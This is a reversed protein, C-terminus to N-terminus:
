VGNVSARAMWSVTTAAKGQVTVIINTGSITLTANWDPDTEKTDLSDVSGNLSLTGAVNLVLCARKYSATQTTGNRGVIVASIENVKGTPIPITLITTVTANTTQVYGVYDDATTNANSTNSVKACKVTFTGSAGTASVVSQTSNTSGALDNAWTISSGSQATPEWRTNASNWVLAFGNSPLINQVNYGQIKAVVAAATTGTVDGGMTQSAQNAAPLVGTVYGSGGALNLAAYSAATTSTARLTNGIAPTGTVTIGNVKLVSPSAATGGLDGALTITGTTTTTATPTSGSITQWNAATTSTAILAQGTSPTGSVTIGSVGGVNGAPLTGTIGLGALNIPAFSVQNTASVVLAQGVTTATNQVAAGNVKAVTQNTSTGTLDGGATFGSAPATPAWSTGNWAIVNGNAPTAVDMPRGQIRVVTLAGSTGTVDGGAAFTFAATPTWSSGNWGLLNSVSPAANSVARGQLGTVTQSTSSGTLDGSATFSGGVVADLADVIKNFERGHGLTKHNQMREGMAGKFIGKASPVGIKFSYSLAPNQDLNNDMGGNVRSTVLLSNTAAPVVLTAIRNVNDLYTITSNISAPTAYGDTSTVILDWTNVGTVDDLKITVTSGSPVSAVEDKALVNNVTVIPSQLFISM